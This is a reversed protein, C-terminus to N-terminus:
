RLYPPVAAASALDEPTAQTCFSEKGNGVQENIRQYAEAVTLCSREFHYPKAEYGGGPQLTVVFWILLTNGM